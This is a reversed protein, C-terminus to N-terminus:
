YGICKGEVWLSSREEIKYYNVTNWQLYLERRGMTREEILDSQRGSCKIKDMFRRYQIDRVTFENM